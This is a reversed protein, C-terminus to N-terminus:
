AKTKDGNRMDRTEGLGQEGRWTGMVTRHSPVHGWWSSTDTYQLQLLDTCFSFTKPFRHLLKITIERYIIDYYNFM